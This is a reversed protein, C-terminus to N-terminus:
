RLTVLVAGAGYPQPYGHDGISSDTVVYEGPALDYIWLMETGASIRASGVGDAGRGLKTGELWQQATLDPPVDELRLSHSNAGPNRLLLTGRAPITEPLAWSRADSAVATADPEPLTVATSRGSVSVTSLAASTFVEQQDAGEIPRPLAALWYTGAELTTAFQAPSGPACDAGGLARTKADLRTAAAGSGQDSTQPGLDELLLRETYGPLPRLLTPTTRRACVVRFVYGGPTLTATTTVAGSADVTVEVVPAAVPSPSPSETPTTSPTTAPAAAAPSAPTQPSSSSGCAAVAGLVVPGLVVGVVIAVARMGGVRLRHGSTVPRHRDRGPEDAGGPVVLVRYGHRVRTSAIVDLNSPDLWRGSITRLNPLGVKITRSGSYRVVPTGPQNAETFTWLRTIVSTPPLQDMGGAYWTGIHPRLQAGPLDLVIRDYGPHGGTRIRALTVDGGGGPPAWVQTAAMTFPRTIPHAIDVVVRTPNSLGFVRFDLRDSM